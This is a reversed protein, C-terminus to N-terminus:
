ISLSGFVISSLHVAVVGRVPITLPSKRVAIERMCQTRQDSFSIFSSTILIWNTTENWLLLPHWYCGGVRPSMQLRNCGQQLRILPALKIRFIMYVWDNQITAISWNFRQESEQTALWMSQGVSVLLGARVILVFFRPMFNDHTRLNRSWLTRTTCSVVLCTWFFLVNEHFKPNITYQTDKAVHTTHIFHLVSLM